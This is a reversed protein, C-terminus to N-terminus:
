YVHINSLIQQESEFLFLFWIYVYRISCVVLIIGLCFMALVFGGIFSGVGIGVVNLSRSPMRIGDSHQLIKLSHINGIQFNKSSSMVVFSVNTIVDTATIAGDVSSYALTTSFQVMGKGDNPCKIDNSTFDNPTLACSCIGNLM